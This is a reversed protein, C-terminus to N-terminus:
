KRDDLTDRNINRNAPTGTLIKMKERFAMMYFETVCQNRCRGRNVIQFEPCAVAM